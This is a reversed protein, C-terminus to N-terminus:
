GHLSFGSQAIQEAVDRRLFFADVSELRISPSVYWGGTSVLRFNRPELWEILEGLLPTEPGYGRYLWTELMLAKAGRCSAEGGKLINLEFGQTDIKIIDAPPLGCEAVVDDLRRVPIPRKEVVGEWDSDIFSNGVHHAYVNFSLTTNEDGLGIRHVRFDPRQRLITALAEAYQDSEWPEFLNFKAEPVVKAMQWSWEGQAAGIDYVNSIAIGAKTLNRIFAQDHSGFDSNLPM